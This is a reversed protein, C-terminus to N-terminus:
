EPFITQIPLDIHTYSQAHIIYTNGNYTITVDEDSFNYLCLIKFDYDVFDRVYALVEDNDIDELFSLTGPLHFFGNKREWILERTTKFHSTSDLYSRYMNFLTEDPHLAMNLTTENFGTRAADWPANCQGWINLPDNQKNKCLSFDKPNPFGHEEGQFICISGPLTMVFSLLMLTRQATYDNGFIRSAAREIDHSSIAWNIKSGDPSVMFNNIIDKKFTDLTRTLSGTYFYQARCIDFIKKARKNSQKDTYYCYELLLMKKKSYSDCLDQLRNIFKAGALTNMDYIRIQKKGEGVPNNRLKADPAFHAAADLRFGDAGLDFWFKAVKLLEDQVYPNELNLNPMTYNFSHMYFAKRKPHYRWASEGDSSWLCKWNNPPLPQPTNKKTIGKDWIFFEDYPAIGNVSKEFWPHKDSCHNYVQDIIVKIGLEHYTKCLEVFDEVCGFIPSVDCYNTIDYGFGHKDWPYFPTIWISTVGLSAVYPAQTTIGKLNGYAGKYPDIRSGKGYSFTLPYIQYIVENPYTSM